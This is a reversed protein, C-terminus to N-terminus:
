RLGIRTLTGRTSDTVWVADPGTAVSSPRGPISTITKAKGSAQDVRLLGAPRERSGPISSGVDTAWVDGGGAALRLPIGGTISVPDGTVEASRPNIEVIELEDNLKTKSVAAYIAGDATALALVQGASLRVPRGAKRIRADIRVISGIDTQAVWAGGAAFVVDAPAAGLRVPADARLTTADVRTLTRASRSTVWVAGAGAAIGSPDPVLVPRGAPRGTVPDVRQVGARADLVWVAGAGVALAVPSKGVQVASGKRRGSTEDHRSLRGSAQDLVWVADAGVAVSVPSRGAQVPAAPAVLRAAQPRPNAVPDDSAGCATIPLAALLVLPLAIRM